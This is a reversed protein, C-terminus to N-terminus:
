PEDGRSLERVFRAPNGAVLTFPAVNKTVVSAAAVVAGRGLTVGKLITSKAGIWVDDEIVIPAAEVHTTDMPQLRELVNVADERRREWRLSHSNNDIIDVLHAILVFNGISVRDQAWIRSGSGLSCHHGISVTAGVRQILIQGMLLGQGGISIADAKSPNVFETSSFLRTSSPVVAYRRLESEHRLRPHMGELHELRSRLRLLIPDLFKWILSM